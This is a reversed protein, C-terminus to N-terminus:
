ERRKKRWKKYDKEAKEWEKIYEEDIPEGCPLMVPEITWSDTKEHYVKIYEYKGVIVSSILMLTIIFIFGFAVLLVVSFAIVAIGLVLKSMLM